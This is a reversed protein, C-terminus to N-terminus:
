TRTYNYRPDCWSQRLVCKSIYLRWPPRTHLARSLTMPSQKQIGTLRQAAPGPLHTPSKFHRQLRSSFKLRRLSVNPRIFRRQARTGLTNCFLAPRRTPNPQSIARTTGLLHAADKNDRPALAANAAGGLRAAPPKKAAQRAKSLADKRCRPCLVENEVFHARESSRVARKVPASQAIASRSTVSHARCSPPRTTALPLSASTAFPTLVRSSRPM